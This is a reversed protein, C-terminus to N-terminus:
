SQLQVRDAVIQAKIEPSFNNFVKEAWLRVGNIGESYSIAKTRLDIKIMKKEELPVNSYKEPVVITMDFMPIDKRPDIKLGFQRNLVSDVIDRYELPVPMIPLTSNINAVPAPPIEFTTTKEAAKTELKSMIADFKSAVDTKLENLQAELEKNTPM